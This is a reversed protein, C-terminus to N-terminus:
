VSLDRVVFGSQPSLLNTIRKKENYTVTCVHASTNDFGCESVTVKECKKVRPRFIISDVNVLRSKKLYGSYIRGIEM